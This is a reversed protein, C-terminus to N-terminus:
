AADDVDVVGEEGGELARFGVMLGVLAADLDDACGGMEDGRIEILTGDDLLVDNPHIMAHTRLLQRDLARIDLTIHQGTGHLPDRLPPHQQISM